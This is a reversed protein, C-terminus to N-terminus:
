CVPFAVQHDFFMIIKIKYSSKIGMSKKYARDAKAPQDSAGKILNLLIWYFFISILHLQIYM